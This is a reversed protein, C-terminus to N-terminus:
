DLVADSLAMNVFDKEVTLVSFLPSYRVIELISISHNEELQAISHMSFIPVV